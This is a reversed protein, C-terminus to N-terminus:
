KKVGIAKELVAIRKDNIRINQNIMLNQVFFLIAWPVSKNPHIITVIGDNNTDFLDMFYDEGKQKDDTYQKIIKKYYDYELDTIEVKQYAIGKIM